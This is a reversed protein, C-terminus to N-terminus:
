CIEEQCVPVTLSEDWAGTHILLDEHIRFYAYNSWDIKNPVWGLETGEQIISPIHKTALGIGNDQVATYYGTFDAWEKLSKAGSWDVFKLAGEVQKELFRQCYEQAEGITKFNEEEFADHDNSENLSATFEGHWSPTIQFCGFFGLAVLTDGEEDLWELKKIEM